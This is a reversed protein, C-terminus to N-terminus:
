HVPASAKLSRGSLLLVSPLSLLFMVGLLWFSDDFSLVGAQVNVINNLISASGALADQYHAGYHQLMSSLQHQREVAYPAYASVKEILVARHFDTRQSIITTLIAIGFSGGLQRALNLFGSASSIESPKCDGLSAINLPMFMIAMSVGRVILPWFFDDYGTQLTSQSIYLMSLACGTAGIAVAVRANLKAVFIGVIPMTIGTALSGPMQLLGTQMATYNLFQQVFTPMTFGVGFLGFGMVLSYIAGGAVSRNKLVRLDVAPHEVTLEQAVFVILSVAATIALTLITRSSFWDDDQGKELVYMLSSIGVTLLTIGLWDVKTRTRENDNPFFALCMLTALIGIPVNILFIWRWNILDTLYGGITPGCIPGVIVCIGFLAQALGQKEKPFTEFLISQAKALLGGGFLGQAIRAIVLTVLDPAIGCVVSAVTFGILSFIFYIKRGIVSSLWATLPIMVANAMSYGTVVWGVESLTAGLNGRIYPLAVNVISTDIVEMLAAISVAVAILWRVIEGREAVLQDLKIQYSTSM